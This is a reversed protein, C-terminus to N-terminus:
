AQRLEIVSTSMPGSACPQQPLSLQDAIGLAAARMMVPGPSCPNGWRLLGADITAGAGVRQGAPFTIATAAPNGPLALDAGLGDLIAVRLTGALHCAAGHNTARITFIKSGAAGQAHPDIALAINNAPCTGGPATTTARPATTPASTTAGALPRTVDSPRQLMRGGTTATTQVVASGGGHTAALALLAAACAGIALTSTWRVVRRRRHNALVSQYAADVAAPSPERRAAAQGLAQRLAEDEV